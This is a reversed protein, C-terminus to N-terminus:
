PFITTDGALVLLGRQTDAVYVRRRAADVAVAFAGASSAATLRDPGWTNYHGIMTPAQPTSLDVVRVGEHEHALFARTGVVSITHLVTSERSPWQGVNALFTPSQPDADLLRLGTTNFGLHGTDAHVIYARGGLRTFVPQHWWRSDVHERGLLVPASPNNLDVVFLGDIEGSIYAIGGEVDVHDFSYDMGPPGAYAGLRVPSRPDAVDYIEVDDGQYTTTLYVRTGDLALAHAPPLDAVRVPASPNTVDFVRSPNSAVLAYRRGGASRLALDTMVDTASGAVRGREVPNALDAFDVIRLGDAGRALYVLDGDLALGLTVGPWRPAGEFSGALSLGRAAPEGALLRFPRAMTFPQPGVCQAAAPPNEFCYGSQGFVAGDARVRCIRFARLTRSGDPYHLIQRLYLDDPTRTHEIREEGYELGLFTVLTGGEDVTRLDLTPWFDLPLSAITGPSCQSSFPFEDPSDFVGDFPDGTAADPADPAADPVDADRGADPALTAPPSCAVAFLLSARARFSRM